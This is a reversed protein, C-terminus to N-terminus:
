AWRADRRDRHGPADNTRAIIVFDRNQRARVAERVKAAMLEQSILHEVGAHHHARKPLLQDEIEIACFRAAEAAEVTFGVHMPDGWGCVGDMILPLKCAARIEVGTQILDTLSLNAELYCKIYGLAGGSLHLVEFGAQAALKPCLPNFVAPALYAQKGALMEHFNM